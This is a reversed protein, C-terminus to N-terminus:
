VIDAPNRFNAFQSDKDFCQLFQNNRIGVAYRLGLNIPPILHNFFTGVLISSIIRISSFTVIRRIRPRFLPPKFVPSTVRVPPLIVLISMAMLNM